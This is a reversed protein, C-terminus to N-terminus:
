ASLRRPSGHHGVFLWHWHVSLPRLAEVALRIQLPVVAYVGVLPRVLAGRRPASLAEDLPTGECDVDPRVRTLLWVLALM